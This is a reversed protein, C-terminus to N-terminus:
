ASRQPLITESVSSSGVTETSKVLVKGKLLNYMIIVHLVM